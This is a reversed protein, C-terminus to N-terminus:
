RKSRRHQGPRGVSRSTGRDPQGNWPAPREVLGAVDSAALHSRTVAVLYMRPDVDRHGCPAEYARGAAPGDMLKALVGLVSQENQEIVRVIVLRHVAVEGANQDLRPGRHRRPLDDAEASARAARGGGMQM